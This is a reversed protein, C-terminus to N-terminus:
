QQNLSFNGAIMNDGNSDWNDTFRHVVALISFTLNSYDKNSSFNLYGHDVGDIFFSVGSGYDILTYHHIIGDNPALTLMQFNVDGANGNPEQIYGYVFGDKLDMRIGFETGKYTITNSSAFISMEDFGLAGTKPTIFTADFDMKQIAYTNFAFADSGSMQGYNTTDPFSFNFGSNDPQQVPCGGGYTYTTFNSNELFIPDLTPASSNDYSNTLNLRNTESNGTANTILTVDSGTTQEQNINDSFSFYVQAMDTQQISYGGYASSNFKLTDLSIPKTELQTSASNYMLNTENLVNTENISKVNIPFSSQKPVQSTIADTNLRFSSQSFGSTLVSIITVLSILIITLAISTNKKKSPKRNM